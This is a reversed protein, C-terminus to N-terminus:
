LHKTAGEIVPTQVEKSLLYAIITDLESDPKFIYESQSTLKGHLERFLEAHKETRPIFVYHRVQFKTAKLIIFDRKLGIRSKLEVCKKAFDLLQSRNRHNYIIVSQGKDYYQKVEDIFAYKVADAQTINVAPTEIGNDPDLFVADANALVSLSGKFWNERDAQRAASTTAAYPIAVRYYQSVKPLVSTKEIEYVKRRCPAVIDKLRDFLQGDLKRYDNSNSSSLYGTAGEPRTNYYWNVGIRINGEGIASLERLLIYKGFDGIDGVYEDRVTQKGGILNSDKLIRRDPTLTLM